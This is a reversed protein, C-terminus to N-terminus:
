QATAKVATPPQPPQVTSSSSAWFLPLEVAYNATGTNGSFTAALTLQTSSQVSAITYYEYSTASGVAIIGNNWSGDTAFGSGTVTSSGNNFTATGTPSASSWKMM